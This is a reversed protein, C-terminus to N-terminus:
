RRMRRALVLGLMGLGALAFTAPEPVPQTVEAWTTGVVVNDFVFNGVAATAQARFGVDGINAPLTGTPTISLSATGPESGGPVPNVFLQAQGGFTYKLVGMYTTGLALVTPDYIASGTTTRLGFQWGTGTNRAYLDIADTGTGNPGPTTSPTLATLYSNGTPLTTCDILFSYYVSGSTISSSLAAYSRISGVGSNVTLANGGLDQLGSYTLNPTSISLQAAATSSQLLWPPTTSGAGLFDGSTYTFGDSFLLTAHANPIILACAGVAILVLSLRKM